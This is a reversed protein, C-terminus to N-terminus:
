GENELEKQKKKAEKKDKKKHFLIILQKRITIIGTLLVIIFSVWNQIDGILATTNISLIIENGSLKM